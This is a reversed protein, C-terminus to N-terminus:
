PMPRPNFSVISVDDKNKRSFGTAISPSSQNAAQLATLSTVKGSKLGDEIAEGMRILELFKQGMMPLMREYYKLEQARIFDSTIESETMVPQVKAAEKRWRNAYERYDEMTKQKIKKWITNTQPLKSMLSSDKWFIKPWLGGHLGNVSNWSNTVDLGTIKRSSQVSKVAESIADKIVNMEQERKEEKLRWEKEMEEYHDLKSQVPFSSCLKPITFAPPTQFTIFPYAPHSIFRFRGLSKKGAEEITPHRDLARTMQVRKQKVKARMSSANGFNIKKIDWEIEPIRASAEIIRERLMWETQDLIALRRKAADIREKTEVFKRFISEKTEEDNVLAIPPIPLNVRKRSMRALRGEEVNQVGLFLFPCIVIFMVYGIEM